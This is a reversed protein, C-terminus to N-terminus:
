RCRDIRALDGIRERARSAQRELNFFDQQIAKEPISRVPEQSSEPWREDVLPVVTEEGAPQGQRYAM